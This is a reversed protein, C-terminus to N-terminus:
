CRKLSMTKRLSSIYSVQNYDFVAHMGGAMEFEAEYESVVVRQGAVVEEGKIYEIFKEQIYLFVSNNCPTTCVGGM